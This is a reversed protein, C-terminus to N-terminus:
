LFDLVGIPHTYKITGKIPFQSQALILLFRAALKGREKKGVLPGVIRVLYHLSEELGWNAHLKAAVEALIPESPNGSRMYERHHPVSYVIRMHSAVQKEKALQATVIQHPEFELLLCTSLVALRAADTQPKDKWDHNLKEMAFRILDDDASKNSLNVESNSQWYTWWRPNTVM